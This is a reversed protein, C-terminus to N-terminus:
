KLVLVAVPTEYRLQILQKFFKFVTRFERHLLKSKEKILEYDYIPIVEVHSIYRDGHHYETQTSISTQEPAKKMDLTAKLMSNEKKIDDYLIALKANQHSIANNTERLQACEKVVSGINIIIGDCIVELRKVHKKMFDKDDHHYKIREFVCGKYEIHIIPLHRMAALNYIINPTNGNPLNWWAAAHVLGQITDFPLYYNNKIIFNYNM